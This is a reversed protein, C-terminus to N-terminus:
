AENEMWWARCDVCIVRAPGYRPKGSTKLRVLQPWERRTFPHPCQRKRPLLAYARHM